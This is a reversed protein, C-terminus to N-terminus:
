FALKIGVGPDLSFWTVSGSAFEIFPKLDFSFALPIEPVKYEIGAMGDIGVGVAGDEIERNETFWAPGRYGRYNANYFAVHAGAGYLWHLGNVNFANPHKEYLGTISLGDNWIGLIGEVASNPHIIKRATIGSTGGARVGIAFDYQAM